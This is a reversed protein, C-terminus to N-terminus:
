RQNLAQQTLAEVAARASPVRLKSLTDILLQYLSVGSPADERLRAAAARLRQVDAKYLERRM